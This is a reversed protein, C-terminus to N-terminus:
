TDAGASLLEALNEISADPEDAGVYHLKTDLMRTHVNLLQQLRKTLTAHLPTDAEVKEIRKAVKELERVVVAIQRDFQELDSPITQEIHERAKVKAIDALDTRRQRIHESVSRSTIAIGHRRKLWGAIWAASQGKAAHELVHEIQRATLKSPRGM